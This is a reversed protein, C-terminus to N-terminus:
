CQNYKCQNYKCHNYKCQNYRYLTPPQWYSALQRGASGGRPPSSDWSLMMLKIVMKRLLLVDQSTSPELSLMMLYWSSSCSSSTFKLSASSWSSDDYSVEVLVVWAVSRHGDIVDTNFPWNPHCSSYSSFFSNHISIMWWFHVEKCQGIVMLMM